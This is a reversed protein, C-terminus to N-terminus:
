DAGLPRRLGHPCRFIDALAKREERDLESTIEVMVELIEGKQRRREALM